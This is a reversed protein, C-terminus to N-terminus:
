ARARVKRLIPSNGPENPVDICKGHIDFKWGHYICRIGNDENRGYFLSALRHPCRHDLLGIRGSSDRFAILSEGLLRLRLPPGDREKLEHSHLLPIWYCRLMNGMPTGPGVSTLFTNDEKSLM